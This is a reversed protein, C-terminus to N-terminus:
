RVLESKPMVIWDAIPRGARGIAQWIRNKPALRAYTDHLGQDIGADAVARFAHTAM